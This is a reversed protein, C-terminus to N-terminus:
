PGRFRLAVIRRDQSASDTVSVNFDFATKYEARALRAVVPIQAGEMGALEVRNQPIIIEPSPESAAGPEPAIFYGRKEDGKNELHLTYHNRILEGEFVFPLGATRLVTIQFPERRGAALSFAALGLIGLAAYIWVRPRLFRRRGTEFARQSDYRILGRPKDIRAQIEDCADICNACGVCEMQLGNRIDIGTPCVEVCRYCDICDGGTESAKGRPEGRRADYGIIVTDTDV